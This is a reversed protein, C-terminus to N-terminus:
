EKEKIDVLTADDLRKGTYFVIEGDAAEDVLANPFIELVKSMATSLLM